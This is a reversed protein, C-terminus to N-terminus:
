ICIYILVFKAWSHSIFYSYQSGWFHIGFMDEGLLHQLIGHSLEAIKEHWSVPMLFHMLSWLRLTLIRRPLDYMACGPFSVHGAPFIGMNLLYYIKLHAQNNQYIIPLSYISSCFVLGMSGIAVSIILGSSAELKGLKGHKDTLWGGRRNNQSMLELELFNNFLLNDCNDCLIKCTSFCWVCLDWTWNTSTPEFMNWNFSPLYM